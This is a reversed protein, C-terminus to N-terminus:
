WKFFRRIREEKDYVGKNYIYRIRTSLSDRLDSAYRTDNHMIRYNQPTNNINLFCFTSDSFLRCMSMWIDKDPLNQLFSLPPESDYKLFKYGRPAIVIPLSDRLFLNLTDPGNIVAYCMSNTSNTSLLLVSDTQNRVLIEGSFREVYNKLSDIELDFLSPIYSGSVIIDHWDLGMLAAKGEPTGGSFYPWLEPYEFLRYYNPSEKVLIHKDEYKRLAIIWYGVEWTVLNEQFNSDSVIGKNFLETRSMEPEDLEIFCLYRDKYKIVRSPLEAGDSGASSSARVRYILISDNSAMEEIEVYPTSIFNSDILLTVQKAVRQHVEELSSPSLCGGLIILIVSYVLKRMLM